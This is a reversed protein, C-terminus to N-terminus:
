SSSAWVQEILLQVLWLCGFIVLIWSLRRRAEFRKLTNEMYMQDQPVTYHLYFRKLVFCFMQAMIGAGIFFLPSYYEDQRLFYALHAM